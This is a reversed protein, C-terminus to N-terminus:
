YSSGNQILGMVSLDDTHTGDLNYRNETKTFNLGGDEEVM